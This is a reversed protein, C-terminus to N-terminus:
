KKELYKSYFYTVTNFTAFALFPSVYEIDDRTSNIASTRAEMAAKNQAQLSAKQEDIKAADAKMEERIKQESKGFDNQMQTGANSWDAPIPQKMLPLTNRVSARTKATDIWQESQPDRRDIMRSAEMTSFGKERAVQLASDRLNM